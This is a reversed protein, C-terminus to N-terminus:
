KRSGADALTRNWLAVTALYGDPVPAAVLAWAPPRYPACGGNVRLVPALSVDIRRFVAALGDGTAKSMAEKCTWYRLLLRRREDPTLGALATREAPTLVRRALADTAIKRGAREVDVGIRVDGSRNRVIGILVVGATHSVNFDIGDDARGLQPRGREGRAIAVGAPTTGLVRGLVIRLSARGAIWRARLSDRGFRAARAHEAPALTAALRPLAEPAVDLECWWLSVGDAVRPLERPRVGPVSEDRTM